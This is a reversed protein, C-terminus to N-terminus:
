ARLEAIEAIIWRGHHDAQGAHTNGQQIYHAQSIFLDQNPLTVGNELQLAPALRLAPLLLTQMVVAKKVCGAQRSCSVPCPWGSRGWRSSATSSASSSGSNPLSSRRSAGCASIEWM